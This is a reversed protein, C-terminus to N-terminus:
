SELQEINPLSGLFDESILEILRYESVGVPKAIDKLAYEAVFRNKDTWRSLRINVFL